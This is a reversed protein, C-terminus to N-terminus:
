PNPIRRDWAWCALVGLQTRPDRLQSCGARPDNLSGILLPAADFPIEM